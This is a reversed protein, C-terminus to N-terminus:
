PSTGGEDGGRRSLFAQTSVLAHILRGISPTQGPALWEGRAQKAALNRARYPGGRHQSLLKIRDGFGQLVEWSGDTSEDDVVIVEVPVDKSALACNVADAIYAKGNFNPIIVTVLPYPPSM